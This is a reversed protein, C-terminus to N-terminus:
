AAVAVLVNLLIITVTAGMAIWLARMTKEV